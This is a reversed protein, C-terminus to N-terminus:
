SRSTSVWELLDATFEDRNIENFMEHRGGDYVKLSVQSHGTRVYHDALRQMGREGGVPDVQGGVIRIHTEPQIKKLADSTSIELLGSLLDRWLGCSYPGGCLPSAVYKDVEAEDRSLWDFETRYPAFPKNFDSFGLKDLLPSHSRVGHRWTEIYTLIMAARVQLRSPWTSASLVLASIAQPYRMAFSQAIFSGMSHGLLIVQHQSCEELAFNLVLLSDTILLNWGNEDDFHGQLKEHGGHGRHDHVCVAFGQAVAASAFRDYRLAHEGLGHLIQILGNCPEAPQWMHMHIEHGDVARLLHTRYGIDSM